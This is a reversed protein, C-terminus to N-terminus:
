DAHESPPCATCGTPITFSPDRRPNRLYLTWYSCVYVLDIVVVVVIASHVPWGVLVGVRYRHADMEVCAPPMYTACAPAVRTGRVLITTDDM